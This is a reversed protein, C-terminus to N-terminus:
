LFGQEQQTKEMELKAPLCRNKHSGERIGVHENGRGCGRSRISPMRHATICHWAGASHEVWKFSNRRDFVDRDGGRTKYCGTYLDDTVILPM